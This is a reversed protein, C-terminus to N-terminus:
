EKLIMDKLQDREIFFINQFSIHDFDHAYIEKMCEVSERNKFQSRNRMQM